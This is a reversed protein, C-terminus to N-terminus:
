CAAELPPQGRCSDMAGRSLLRQLSLAQRTAAVDHVRVIHVGACAAHLAAAISAGLRSEPPSKEALTLFSKRSAGIMMPANLARFEALRRLIEACHRANKWFGLGPDFILDDSSAGQQLARERAASWEVSIDKVVDGYASEPVASYGPMNRMPGRAHMIILGARHRATLSAIAPNALCSVDNIADAGLDLAFAAVAPDSTDVSILIDKPSVEVAHHLVPAIRAIQEEPSVSQAGPRTSEGGIDIIAAGQTVLDDFHQVAAGGQWRSGDYFSDPTVNLIGMVVTGNRDFM